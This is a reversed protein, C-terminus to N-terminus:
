GLRGAGRNDAFTRQLADSVSLTPSWGLEARVRSSDFRASLLTRDVQHSTVPSKRGVLRASTEVLRVATRILAPPIFVPTWSGGSARRFMAAYDAQRVHEDVLTYIRGVAAPTRSAVVLADAVNDVFAMPMLYDRGAFLLRLPGVGVSRRALPPNRGPGFILGPRVITVPAGSAIAAQAALDAELKSRAYFGREGAGSELPSDEGIVAGDRPVDYVSLSSVHVFHEAGARVSAAILERTAVVNVAEFEAWAGTTAVRAGAHIVRNVGDVAAAFCGPDALDGEVVEDAGAPRPRGGRVLARVVHPRPEAALRRLVAAGVFGSAGTVLTRM